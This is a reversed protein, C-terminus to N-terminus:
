VVQNPPPTPIELFVQSFPFTYIFNYPNESSDLAFVINDSPIYKLASFMKAISKAARGVPSKDNDM